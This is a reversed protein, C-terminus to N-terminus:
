RKAIAAFCSSDPKLLLKLPLQDVSDIHQKLVAILPFLAIISAQMRKKKKCCNYDGADATRLHAIAKHLDEVVRIPPL